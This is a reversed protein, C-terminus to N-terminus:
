ISKFIVMSTEYDFLKMVKADSYIIQLDGHLGHFERCFNQCGLFFDIDDYFNTFHKFFTIRVISEWNSFTLIMKKHSELIHNEIKFSKETYNRNKALIEIKSLFKSKQGVNWNKLCFKSKKSLFTRKLFNRSFNLSDIKTCFKSKESYNRNPGSNRNKVM